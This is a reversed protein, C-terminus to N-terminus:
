VSLQYILQYLCVNTVEPDASLQYLSPRFRRRRGWVETNTYFDSHPPADVTDYGTPADSGRSAVSSGDGYCQYYGSRDLGEMPGEWQGRVSSSQTWIVGTSATASVQCHCYFTLVNEQNGRVSLVPPRLDSSLVDLWALLTSPCVGRRGPADHKAKNRELDQETIKWPEEQQQRQPGSDSYQQPNTELRFRNVSDEFQVVDEHQYIDPLVEVDHFGLRFKKILALVRFCLGYGAWRKRRILLYPLLLTLRTAVSPHGKMACDYGWSVIGQLQGSCVLPGGSDGQCSSAGGQMFGSCLMNETLLDPYANRCIRDDIIPQRLCQLRDPYDSGDASTNGWGSELCDEDPAPCRSPLAVTSPHKIIKSGDIWQETGENVGIDHEGLRVQIRSMFCHAASLVWQSSILSGGCFHYGADLSVQYPVSHRPCEYGGVIKDDEAAAFAAGLLALFILDRM